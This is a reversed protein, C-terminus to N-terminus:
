LQEPGLAAWAVAALAHQDSRRQIVGTLVRKRALTFVARCLAVVTDTAAALPALRRSPLRVLALAFAGACLKAAVVPRAVVAAQAGLQVRSHLMAVGLHAVAAASLRM